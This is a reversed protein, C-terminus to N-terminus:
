GLISDSLFGHLEVSEVDDRFEVTVRGLEGNEWECSHDVFLGEGVIQQLRLRFVAVM